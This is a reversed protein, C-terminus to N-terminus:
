EALLTIFEARTLGAQNLIIRILGRDLDEHSHVPVTTARGDAHRLRVHSGRQRVQAFGARPAVGRAM